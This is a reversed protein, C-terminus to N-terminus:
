YIKPVPHINTELLKHLDQANSPFKELQWTKLNLGYRYILCHQIVVEHEFTLNGIEYYWNNVIADMIYEFNNIFELTDLQIQQWKHYVTVWHDWRTQDIAINLFKMIKKITHKGNYWLSEANVQCHRACRNIKLDDMGWNPDFPRTCLAARERRDWIDTLGMQEWRKINDAFFLQDVHDVAERVSGAPQTTFYLMDLVRCQKAYLVHHKGVSVYVVKVGVDIFSNIMKAYDDQQYQFLQKQKTDDLQDVINLKKGAVTSLVMGPYFSLLETSSVATLQNFCEWALDHGLPHNKKHGHANMDLIPDASLPIWDSHKTSYFKNKGSLFHISWDLFTCGLSTASTVCVINNM